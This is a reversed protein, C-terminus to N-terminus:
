PSTAASSPAYQSYANRPFSSRSMALLELTKQPQNQDGGGDGADEEESWPPM